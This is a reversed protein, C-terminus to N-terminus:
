VRTKLKETIEIGEFGSLVSIEQDSLSKIFTKLFDLKKNELGKKGEKELLVKLYYNFAKAVGKGQTFTVERVKVTNAPKMELETSKKTAAELAAFDDKEQDQKQQEGIPVPTFLGKKINENFREHLRTLDIDALVQDYVEGLEGAPRTFENDWKKQPGDNFHARSINYSIFDDIAEILENAFAEKRQKEAIENVYQDAKLQLTNKIEQLEKEPVMLEKKKEDFQRTIEKREAQYAKLTDQVLGSLERCEDLEEQKAIKAPIYATYNRLLEIKKEATQKISVIDM